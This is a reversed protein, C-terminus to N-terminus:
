GKSDHVEGSPLSSDVGSSFFCHSSISRQGSSRYINLDQVALVVVAIVVVAIVVVVVVVKILLLVVAEVVLVVAVVLVLVVFSQQTM